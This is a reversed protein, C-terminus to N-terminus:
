LIRQSSVFFFTWRNNLYINVIVFLTNPLFQNDCPCTLRKQWKKKKRRGKINEPPSIKDDDYDNNDDDDVSSLVYIYICLIFNSVNVWICIMFVFSLSRCLMCCSRVDRMRLSSSDVDDILSFTLSLHLPFPSLSCSRFIFCITKRSLKQTHTHPLLLLSFLFCRSLIREPYIPV